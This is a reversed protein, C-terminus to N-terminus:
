GEDDIKFVRRGVVDVEGEGVVDALEHLVAVCDLDANARVGARQRAEAGEVFAFVEGVEGFEGDFPKDGKDFAADDGAAVGVSVGVLEDGGHDAVGGVFM